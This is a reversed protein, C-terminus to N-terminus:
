ERLSDRTNKKKLSNENNLPEGEHESYTLQVKKRENPKM